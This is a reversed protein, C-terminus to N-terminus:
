ARHGRIRCRCRFPVNTTTRGVRAHDRVGPRRTRSKSRADCRRDQRLGGGTGPRHGGDTSSTGSVFLYPMAPQQVPKFDLRSFDPLQESEALAKLKALGREFDPGIKSDMALGFYRLLPNPGFDIEVSWHLRTGNAIPELSFRNLNAGGFGGFRLESRVERYPTDAIITQSGSGVEGNGAWVYSAGPGLPPGSIETHM